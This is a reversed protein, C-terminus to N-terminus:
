ERSLSALTAHWVRFFEVDSLDFLGDVVALWWRLTETRTWVIRRGEGLAWHKRQFLERIPVVCRRDGRVLPPPNSVSYPALHLNRKYLFPVISKVSEGKRFAWEAITHLKRLGRVQRWDVTAIVNVAPPPLPPLVLVVEKREEGNFLGEESSTSYMPSTPSYYSHYQGGGGFSPEVMADLSLPGLPLPKSEVLRQGWYPALDVDGSLVAREVGAFEWGSLRPPVYDAEWPCVPKLFFPSGDPDTSLFRM